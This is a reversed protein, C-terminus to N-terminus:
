RLVGMGFERRMGQVKELLRKDKHFVKNLASSSIGFVEATKRMEGKKVRLVDLVNKIFMPYEKNKLNIKTSSGPFELEEANGELHRESLALLIKLKDVAVLPNERASRKECYTVTYDSGVLTLRIGSKVKNRKQGGAGSGQYTSLQCESLFEQPSLSLLKICHPYNM